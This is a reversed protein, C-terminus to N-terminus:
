SEASEPLFERLFNAFFPDITRDVEAAPSIEVVRGNDKLDFGFCFGQMDDGFLVISDLHEARERGYVEAPEMPKSYVVLNGLDGSGVEELFLFYDEPLQPYAVGIQETDARTLKVLKASDYIRHELDGFM